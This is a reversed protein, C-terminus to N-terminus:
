ENTQLGSILASKFQLCEGSMVFELVLKEEDTKEKFAISLARSEAQEPVAEEVIKTKQTSKLIVDQIHSLKEPCGIGSESSALWATQAVPLMQSLVSFNKQALLPLLRTKYDAVSVCIKEDSSQLSEEYAQLVPKSDCVIPGIYLQWPPLNKAFSLISVALPKNQTAAQQILDIALDPYMGENRFKQSGEISFYVERCTEAHRQYEEFAAALNSSKVITQASQTCESQLQQSSEAQGVFQEQPAQAAADARKERIKNLILFSSGLVILAALMSVSVIWAKKRGSLKQPNQDGNM